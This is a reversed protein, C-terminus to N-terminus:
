SIAGFVGIKKKKKDKKQCKRKKTKKTKKTKNIREKVECGCGRSGNINGNNSTDNEQWWRGQLLM